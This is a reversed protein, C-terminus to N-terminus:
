CSPAHSPVAQQPSAREGCGGNLLSISVWCCRPLCTHWRQPVCCSSPGALWNHPFMRCAPYSSRPCTGRSAEIAALVGASSGWLVCGAADNVATFAQETVENWALQRTDITGVIAFDLWMIVGTLVATNIMVLPWHRVVMSRHRASVPVALRRALPYIILALLVADLVLAYGHEASLQSVLALLLWALLLAVVAQRIKVFTGKWLLQRIRSGPRIVSALLLRRHFLRYETRQLWIPWALLGTLMFVGWCPISGALTTAYVLAGGLLLMALARLILLRLPQRPSGSENGNRDRTNV